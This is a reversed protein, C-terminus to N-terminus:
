FPPRRRRAAEQIQYQVPVKIVTFSYPLFTDKLVKGKYTVQETKPQIKLPEEISNAVNLDPNALTIKTANGKIKKKTDLQLNVDVPNNNYNVLKVSLEKAHADYVASAY